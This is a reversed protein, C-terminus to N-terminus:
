NIKLIVRINLELSELAINCFDCSFVYVNIM